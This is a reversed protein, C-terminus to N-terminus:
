SIPFLRRVGTMQLQLVQSAVAVSLEFGRKMAHFIVCFSAVDWFVPILEAATLLMLSGRTDRVGDRLQVAVSQPAQKAVRVRRQEGRVCSIYGQVISSAVQNGLEETCDWDDLNGREEMMASNLKSAHGKYISAAAYRKKLQGGPRCTDSNSAVGM